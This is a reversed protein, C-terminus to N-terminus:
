AAKKHSKPLADKAIWPPLVFSALHIEPSYHKTELGAKATREKLEIISPLIDKKNTNSAFGLTMYGGYYTPIAAIYCSTKMGAEELAGLTVAVEGEQFFPVGGQTSIFAEPKLIKALSAYFEPTFLKEGPGIPDTSDIIM